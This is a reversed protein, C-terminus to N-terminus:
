GAYTYAFGAKQARQLAVVGAPAMKAGPILNAALESEIASANGKDGALLKAIFETAAGCVAFKVGREALGPLNNQAEGEVLEHLLWNRTAPKKTGPDEVKLFEGLATYKAWMADNYGFPTGFHRFCVVVSIDDLKTGLKSASYKILNHAFMVGDPASNASTCDYIAKNSGKMGAYWRDMEDPSPAAGAISPIFAGGGLAVALAPSAAAARALFSRRPVTDTM